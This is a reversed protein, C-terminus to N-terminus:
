RVARVEEAAVTRAAYGLAALIDERVLGYEEAVAEIAMGGALKGLVVDVPVRTGEIVPKGFRINEDVVIRPAIQVMVARRDLDLKSSIHV